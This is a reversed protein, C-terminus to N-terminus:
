ANREANAAANAMHNVLEDMEPNEDLIWGLTRITAEMMRGGIFCKLEHRTGECDCPMARCAVLAERHARIESESKM